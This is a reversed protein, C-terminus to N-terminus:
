GLRLLRFSYGNLSYKPQSIHTQQLEQIKQLKEEKGHRAFSARNGDDETSLKDVGGGYGLSFAGM